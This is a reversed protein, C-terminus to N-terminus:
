TGTMMIRDPASLRYSLGDEDLRLSAEGGLEYPLTHTLVETGLGTRGSPKLGSMGSEKWTFILRRAEGTGEFQWCIRIQADKHSLAGYKIANTVLEHFGLALTEASKARLRVPPGEVLLAEGEQAAGARLEEAVITALDVGALPDRTVAAQVRAFADIRGELNMALTEISDSSQATRRAISRIVALTNRVRHQLEASLVRQHEEARRRETIDWNLGVMEVPQGAVNRRVVTHAVLWRTEGDRRVIRFEADLLGRGPALDEPGFEVLGRDDPHVLSMFLGRTPPENGPELGFLRFQQASWQQKGTALDYSWTGMRGADLAM